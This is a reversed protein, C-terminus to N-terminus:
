LLDLCQEIPIGRCPDDLHRNRSILSSVVSMATETSQQLPRGNMLHGILVASFIDGTGHFAVPIEEYPILFSSHPILFPSHPIVRRLPATLFIASKTIPKVDRM